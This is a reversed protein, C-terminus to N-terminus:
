PGWAIGSDADISAGETLRQPQDVSLAGGDTILNAVWLDFSNSGPAVALFALLTGDPAFAPARATGIDTLQLATGGSVPVVFIDTRDGHRAAFALWRGDPSFAPDYSGDPVGPVPALQGDSQVLQRLGPPEQSVPAFSVVIASGDPAYAPQGLHGADSAFRQARAGGPGASTTFLSLYYDTAPSGSPPAHQSVFVVESGDPSFTPYYAWITDYIREYSHSPLTSSNNTLVLLDDVTAPLTVVDSYSEGRAVAVIRTGDPSWAPQYLNGRDTLRRATDGLWLWLDGERVFLLRGPLQVREHALSPPATTRAGEGTGAAGQPTDEVELPRGGCALLVAMALLTLLRLAFLKM